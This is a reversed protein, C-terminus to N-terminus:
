KKKMMRKPLLWITTTVSDLPQGFNTGEKKKKGMKITRM